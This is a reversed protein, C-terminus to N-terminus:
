EQLAVESCGTGHGYKLKSLMLKAKRKKARLMLADSKTGSSKCWLNWAATSKVQFCGIQYREKQLVVELCGIQYRNKKVVSWPMRNPVAVKAVCRWLMRNPVAVKAGCSCNSPMNKTQKKKQRKTTWGPATKRAVQQMKSGFDRIQM